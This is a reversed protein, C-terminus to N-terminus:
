YNLIYHSRAALGELQIRLYCLQSLLSFAPSKSSSVSGCCNNQYKLSLYVCKGQLHGKLKVAWFVPHLMILNQHYEWFCIRHVICFSSWQQSVCFVAPIYSLGSSLSHFEVFSFRDTLLDYPHFSPKYVYLFIHLHHMLRSSYASYILGKIQAPNNIGM